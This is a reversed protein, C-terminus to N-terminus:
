RKPFHIRHQRWFIRNILLSYNDAIIIEFTHFKVLFDDIFGTRVYNMCRHLDSSCDTIHLLDEHSDRYVWVNNAESRSRRFTHLVNDKCSINAQEKLVYCLSEIVSPSEWIKNIPQNANRITLTKELELLEDDTFADLLIERECGSFEAGNSSRVCNPLVAFYLLKLIPIRM